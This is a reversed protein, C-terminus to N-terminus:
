SLTRPVNICDLVTLLMFPGPDTMSLKDRMFLAIKQCRCDKQVSIIGKDTICAIHILWLLKGPLVACFVAQPQKLLMAQRNEDDGVLAADGSLIESFGLHMHKM